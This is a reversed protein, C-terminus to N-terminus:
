LDAGLTPLSPLAPSLGSGGVAVEVEVIASGGGLYAEKSGDVAAADAGACDRGGGSFTSSLAVFTRRGALMTAVAVAVAVAVAGEFRLEKAAVEEGPAPEVLRYEATAAGARGGDLGGRGTAVNSQFKSCM